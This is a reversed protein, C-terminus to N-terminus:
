RGTGGTGAGSRDPPRAELGRPEAQETVLVRGDRDLVDFAEERLEVAGVDGGLHHAIGTGLVAEVAVLARAVVGFRGGIRPGARERPELLVQFRLLLDWLM